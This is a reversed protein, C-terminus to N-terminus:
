DAHDNDKRRKTGQRRFKFDCLNGGTGLTQTRLFVIGPLSGYAYHDNQCFIHTIEPCSEKECYFQYPCKTINFEFANRNKVLVEHCFGAKEGFSKAAGVSFLNLFISKMGPLRVMASYTNGKRIGLKAAGHELITVALDSDMGRGRLAKYFAIVPFINGYVHKMEEKSFIPYSEKLTDFIGNATDIIEDAETKGLRNKLETKYVDSYQSKCLFYDRKM